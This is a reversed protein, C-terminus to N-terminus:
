GAPRGDLETLRETLEDAREDEAIDRWLRVARQWAEVAEERRGMDLLVMGLQNLVEAENEADGFEVMVERAHELESVAEALEGVSGLARGHLARVRARMYKDDLKAATVVALGSEEVAEAYRGLSHLNLSINARALSEVYVDGLKLGIALGRRRSALAEESRGLRTLTAAMNLVGAAEASREGATHVLELGDEYLRLAEAHRGLDSYADALKLQVLGQERATGFERVAELMEIHDLRRGPHFVLVWKLNAATSTALRHWGRVIAGFMTAKLNDWEQRVWALADSRSSFEQPTVGTTVEGARMAIKAGEHVAANELTHVYWETLRLAAARDDGSLEAAYARLLDHLEYRGPTRSQVLHDAVLRELLRRAQAVSVDALAAAASVDFDPGPHVSLLRFMRASEDDLARYSWSFVARVDIEEYDSLADLRASDLEAVFERLSTDPFRAVREAFVRLALPLGACREVIEGAAEPEAAVRGVGLVAGLLAHAATFDLQHLGIATADHQSVLARLQNRSTIVVRVGPAGPLLPLVQRASAANDLVLLLRRDALETRLLAYRADAAAPVDTVGLGVLLHEAAAAPEVPKAEPDFGRLNLYLDGDPFDDRAARAWRLALATKGVGGVGHLVTIGGATALAALEEARGVFNRVGAPLQRPVRRRTVSVEARLIQEHLERLAPGPDVGLEDVLRTRVDRYAALAEAQHGAQYLALMLQRWFSERLPHEAVLSRLEAVLEGALGRDLDTDIRRDLVALRENVLQPVDERHLRDSPVNGLVPGRWLASAAGLDGSGALARFRLLDLEDPEVSALYGGRSTRVCDAEGLAVRLRRVVMQLTKHARDPSPPGDEWVRDILEDAPVFWNPRLLLTALLVQCRGGPVAVATGDHLVELPGLVRYEIM